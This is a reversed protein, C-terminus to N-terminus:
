GEEFMGANTAKRLYIVSAVALLTGIPFNFVALFSQLYGLYKAWEQRNEIGRATVFALIGSLLVVTLFAGDLGLGIGSGFGMFLLALVSSGASAYFVMSAKQLAETGEDGDVQNFM